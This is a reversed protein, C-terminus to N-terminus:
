FKITIEEIEDINLKGLATDILQHIEFETLRVKPVTRLMSFTFVKHVIHTTSGQFTVGYMDSAEVRTDEKVKCNFTVSPSITELSM